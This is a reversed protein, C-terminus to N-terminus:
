RGRDKRLLEVSDCFRKGSKLMDSRRKDISSWLKDAEGSSDPLSEQLLWIVEQNISRKDKEAQEKLSRYLEEPINKINLATM